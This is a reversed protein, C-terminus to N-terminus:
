LSYLNIVEGCTVVEVGVLGKIFFYAILGSWGVLCVIVPLMEDLGIIKGLAFADGKFVTVWLCYGITM